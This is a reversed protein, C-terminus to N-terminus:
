SNSEKIVLQSMKKRVFCKKCTVKIRFNSSLRTKYGWPMRIGAISLWTSFQSYNSCSPDNESEVNMQLPNVGSRKRNFLQCEEKRQCTSDCHVSLFQVFLNVVLCTRIPTEPVDALNIWPVCLILLHSQILSQCITLGSKHVSSPSNHQALPPHLSSGLPRLHIIHMHQAHTDTTPPTHRLTERILM